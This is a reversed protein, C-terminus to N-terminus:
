FRFYMFPNGAAGALSYICAWFLVIWVATFAPNRRHNEWFDFVKPVLLLLGPILVTKYVGINKIFDNENVAIGAGFFPFLRSFYDSLMGMDSIAFVVWTLPILVLVNFRGTFKKLPEPFRKFVLLRECVIIIFLLLGWLIFNLTVGHWFGTILWVVLLNLVTRGEGKRSGGLPIYIYDRFWSGLTAHWRRYFESVSESGYPHKFNSVFPFGLMVGIGAAMLSYGWFDYYLELSYTVAGLWALPTSISEYGITGIDKWLMALHDALLAKMALGAIFFRIGDEINGFIEKLSLKEGETRTFMANNLLFRDYRMIPGSVIQPFMCFYAAVNVFTADKDIKGRYVDMQFSIMKFIYFSIGIPMLSNDVFQSLLKFELLMGADIAAIFILLFRKKEGLQARAFLFNVIVAGLLVPFMRIDGVAYFLLSGILLTWTRFRVPTVYFAILFVPLFRFIFSLDSFNVM